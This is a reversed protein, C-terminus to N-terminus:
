GYWYWSIGEEFEKHCTRSRIMTPMQKLVHIFSDYFDPKDNEYLIKAIHEDMCDPITNSSYVLAVNKTDDDIMIYTSLREKKLRYKANYFMTSVSGLNRDVYLVSDDAHVFNKLADVYSTKQEETLVGLQDEIKLTWKHPFDDDSEM